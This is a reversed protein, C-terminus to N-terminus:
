GGTLNLVINDLMVANFSCTIYVGMIFYDYLSNMIYITMNLIGWGVQGTWDPDLFMNDDYDILQTCQKVVINVSRVNM